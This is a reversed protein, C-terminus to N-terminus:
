KDGVRDFTIPDYFSTVLRKVKGDNGVAFRVLAKSPMDYIPNTWAVRFTDHHWHTLPGEHRPNYSFWLQGNKMTVHADGSLADHYRGTYASPALSPRTGGVRGAVIRRERNQRNRNKFRVRTVYDASWDRTPRGLYRDIIWWSLATPLANEAMNTLVVVGLKEAPVLTTRSIMGSLGGGHAVVRRGAYDTLGWGMGYGSFLAGPEADNDRRSMTPMRVVQMDNVVRGSLVRQGDILGGSLHCRVWRAVDTVNSKLGGAATLTDVDDYAVVGLAGGRLEHPTALNKAARLEAMTLVTDKMGLPGILRERLLTEFPRGAAAAAVEGAAVYMLNQYQYATRFPATPELHRVRRLIENRSFPSTIWLHDGGFTPLGSRHCVLDLVRIDRTVWPDHMQFWPLHDIVRDMWALKGEDRLSGIVACTFAKSNSAIAFLTREDVEEPKGMERVGYGRAHVVQDDKVVAIALGPVGWEQMAKTVYADLDALPSQAATSGGILLTQVVLLLLIRRM